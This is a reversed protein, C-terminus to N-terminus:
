WFQEVGNRLLSFIVDSFSVRTWRLMAAFIFVRLMTAFFSGFEVSCETDVGQHSLVSARLVENEALSGIIGLLCTGSLFDAEALAPTVSVKVASM